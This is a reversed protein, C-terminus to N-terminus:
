RHDGIGTRHEEKARDEREHDKRELIEIALEANAFNTSTQEDQRAKQGTVKRGTQWETRLKEADNLLLKVSHSSRLYFANPHTLYFSAIAPAEELPVREIFQKLLSNVQRNRTPEVGYRTLYAKAYADWTDASAARSLSKTKTAPIKPKPEKEATQVPNSLVPFSQVPSSQVPPQNKSLTKSATQKINQKSTQKLKAQTKSGGKNGAASRMGRIRTYESKVEEARRNYIRGDETEFKHKIGEWQENFEAESCACLISLKRTDFKPRGDQWQRFLLHTYLGREALSMLLVDTNSLYDSVFFPMSPQKDPMM